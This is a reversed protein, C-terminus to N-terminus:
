TNQGATTSWRKATIRSLVEPWAEWSQILAVHDDNSQQTAHTELRGGATRESVTAFMDEQREGSSGWQATM